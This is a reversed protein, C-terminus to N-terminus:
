LLGTKIEDAEALAKADAEDLAKSLLKLIDKSGLHTNIVQKRYLGVMAMEQLQQVTYFDTAKPIGELLECGSRNRICSACRCTNDDLSLDHKSHCNGVFELDNRLVLNVMEAEQHIWAIYQAM